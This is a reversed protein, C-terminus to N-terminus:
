EPKAQAVPLRLPDLETEAAPACCRLSVLMEAAPACCTEAAPACCTEAAPACCTEAAPACCTEAAPACCTEAAPECCTEAAPACCCSVAVKMSAPASAWRDRDAWCVRDVVEYNIKAETSIAAPASPPGPKHQHRSTSIASPASPPQHQHRSTSIAAPASPAAQRSLRASPLRPPPPRPAQVTTAERASLPVRAQNAINASDLRASHPREFPNASIQKPAALRSLRASPLRPPPPRPAQVTTAERATLPVRAQNQNAINASDLRASQPRDFRYVLGEKSTNILPSRYKDAPKTPDAQLELIKGQLLKNKSLLVRYAEKWDIVEKKLRRNEDELTLVQSMQKFCM